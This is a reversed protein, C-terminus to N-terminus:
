LLQNKKALVGWGLSPINIATNWHLKKLVFERNNKAETGRLIAKNREGRVQTTIIMDGAYDKLFSDKNYEQSHISFTM